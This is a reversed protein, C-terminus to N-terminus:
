FLLLFLSVHYFIEEAGEKKRRKKQSPSILDSICKYNNTIVVTIRPKTIIQLIVQSTNIVKIVPVRPKFRSSLQTLVESLLQQHRLAKRMKMIRVIAAQLIPYSHFYVPRIQVTCPSAELFCYIHVFRKM